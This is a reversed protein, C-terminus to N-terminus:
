LYYQQVLMHPCAGFFFALRLRWMRLVTRVIGQQEWRRSSTVVTASMLVPRSESRLRGCIEVDEMLPIDAFGGIRQFFGSQIFIAQDGTAIKTIKSRLNMAREIVRFPWVSGSLKVPFFGWPVESIMILSFDPPLVTDAHLFLLSQGRAVAAGANMQTGRGPASKIVHDVFPSALECTSDQSDGDVLIVEVGQKRLPQLGLLCTEISQEENRVPIIITLPISTDTTALGERSSNSLREVVVAVRDQRVVM